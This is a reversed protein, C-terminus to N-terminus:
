DYSSITGSIEGRICRTHTHIHPLVILGGQQSALTLLRALEEEISPDYLTLWKRGAFLQLTRTQASLASALTQLTGDQAEEVAADAEKHGLAKSVQHRSNM